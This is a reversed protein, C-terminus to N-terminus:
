RALRGALEVLQRELEAVEGRMAACQPCGDEDMDPLESDLVAAGLQRYMEQLQGPTTEYRGGAKEAVGMKKLRRRVWQTDRGVLKAIDATTLLKPLTM